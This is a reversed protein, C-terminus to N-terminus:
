KAPPNTVINRISSLASEIGARRVQDGKSVGEARVFEVDAVGLFAFFARLYREQFDMDQFTGDAYFGGRASVVIIHKDQTLGIPGKDTYKFTRNVQAIRDLWSKLQTPVSFNYMPAGIVLIDSALFETVLTESLQQEALIDPALDAQQPQRFGAAIPGSLHSVEEAILDRYTVQIDPRDAKIAAVVAASLERSVSANGMISSDIHLLKM